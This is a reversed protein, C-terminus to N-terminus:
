DIFLDKDPNKNIAIIRDIEETPFELVETMYIREEEESLKERAKVKKKLEELYEKSKM